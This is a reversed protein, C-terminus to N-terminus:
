CTVKAKNQNPPIAALVQGLAIANGLWHSFDAQHTTATEYLTAITAGNLASNFLAYEASNLEAIHPKFDERYVLYYRQPSSENVAEIEQKLQQTDESPHHVFNYIQELPYVSLLLQLNNAIKLQVDAAYESQLHVLTEPENIPDASRQCNFMAADLNAADVVYKLEQQQQENLVRAILESFEGNVGWEGWDYTTREIHQCAQVTIAHFNEEGLLAKVTPFSVTLARHANERWNNQYIQLGAESPADGVIAAILDHQYQAEKM